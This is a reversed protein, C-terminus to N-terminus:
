DTDLHKSAASRLDDGIEVGCRAELDFLVYVAELTAAVEGTKLNQM